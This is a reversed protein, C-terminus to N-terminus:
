EGILSKVEENLQDVTKVGDIRKVEKGDKFIITLPVRKVNFKSSITFEEIADVSFCKVKSNRSAFVSFIGAYGKCPGCFESWFKVVCVDTEISSDFDEKTLEPVM